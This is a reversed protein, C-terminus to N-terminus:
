GRYPNSQVGQAVQIYPNIPNFKPKIRKISLVILIILLVIGIMIGIFLEMNNTIWDSFSFSTSITSEGNIIGGTPGNATTEGPTGNATTEGPTGNANTEGTTGNSSADMGCQQIVNQQMATDGGISSDELNIIAQCITTSPCGLQTNRSIPDPYINKNIANTYSDINCEPLICRPVPNDTLNYFMPDIIGYCACEKKFKVWDTSNFRPNEAMFRKLQNQCYLYYFNDCNSTFRAWPYTNGEPQVILSCVNPPVVIEKEIYKYKNYTERVDIDFDDIDTVPIRVKITDGGEKGLCCARKITTQYLHQNIYNNSNSTPLSMNSTNWANRINALETPSTLTNLMSAYLLADTM